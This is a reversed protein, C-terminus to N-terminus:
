DTPAADTTATVSKVKLRGNYKLTVKEGVELEGVPLAQEDGDGVKVKWNDADETGDALKIAYPLIEIDDKYASWNTKYTEVSAAPVYIKRGSANNKFAERGYHTLSPAYIYVEALAGCNYFAQEGIYNMRAPLSIAELKSCRYFANSYIGLSNSGDAIDVTTLNTCDSFAYSSITTVTAPISITELKSCYQFASRGITTVTSPISVSELKSCEAFANDAITTVGVPISVSELNSCGSFANMGITTVGEQITVSKIQDLVSKWPVDGTTMNAMEGSGSIVLSQASPSYEWRVDSGTAGCNGTGYINAAYPSTGYNGIVSLPVIIKSDASIGDFATDAITTGTGKITVTTLAPCNAFTNTGISTITGEIVVQQLEGQLSAWPQEAANAIDNMAGTGCITLTHTTADYLAMAGNGCLMYESISSAYASWATQYAVGKGSPVYIGLTANADFANSGNSPADTGNAIVSTVATCGYFANNGIKTVGKGIVVRTIKDSLFAWPATTKGDAQEYDAMTGTGGITLTNVSVDYSWTVDGATAQSRNNSITNSSSNSKVADNGGGGVAMLINDTVKDNVDAAASNLYVAYENTSIITNGTITANKQSTTLKGLVNNNTFTIDTNSLNVNGTVNNGTAKAGKQLTLINDTAKATPNSVTNNEATSYQPVTLSQTFTNNRITFGDALETVNTSFSPAINVTCKEILHRKGSQIRFYAVAGSQEAKITSNLVKCDDDVMTFDSPKDQTNYPNGIYLPNGVYGVNEIHSNQITCNSSGTLVCAASGGNNETYITCGDLTINTSYRIAVHGVGSGLSKDKVYFTVGTFTLDSTIFVWVVTNEFRIDQVTTGSADKNIVFSNDPVNGTMNGSLSNLKVVANNSGTIKVRKNIVLSHEIDITEQFDLVDGAAM